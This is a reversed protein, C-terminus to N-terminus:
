RHFLQAENGIASRAQLHSESIARVARQRSTLSQQTEPFAAGMDVYRTREMARATNQLTKGVGFWLAGWGWMSPRGMYRFAFFEPSTWTYAALGVRAATSGMLLAKGARGIGRFKSGYIAHKTLGLDDKAFNAKLSSEVTNLPRVGWPEGIMSTKWKGGPLIGTWPVYLSGTEGFDGAMQLASWGWLSGALAGIGGRRYEDAEGRIFENSM